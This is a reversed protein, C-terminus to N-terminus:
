TRLAAAGTRVCEFFGAAIRPRDKLSRDEFFSDLGEFIHFRAHDEFTGYGVYGGEAGEDIDADM